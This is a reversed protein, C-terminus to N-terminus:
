MVDTRRVVPGGVGGRGDGARGLVGRAM